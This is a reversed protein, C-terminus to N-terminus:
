RPPYWDQRLRFFIEETSAGRLERESSNRDLVTMAVHEGLARYSEFQSEDFCQDATTQHPFAAHQEAYHAVDAPEDGSLSAKIYLLTGVPHRPGKNNLRDYRIQGFACHAKSYGSEKARRIADVNIEIDIGFDTRCKEIANGLCEFGLDADASGDCAIIYRCRRRVLEYIGLNEFHGGDSLYVYDRESNTEGFLELLLYFLGWPPQPNYWSSDVRSNGLWWGLRVNLVSMLFAVPPSSHYGMNPTFAAGSIAMATGLSM